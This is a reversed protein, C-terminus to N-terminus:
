YDGTRLGVNVNSPACEGTGVINLVKVLDKNLVRGHSYPLEKKKQLPHQLKQLVIPKARPNCEDNTM